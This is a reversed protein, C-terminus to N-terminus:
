PFEALNHPGPDSSNAPGGIGNVISGIEGQSGGLSMILMHHLLTGGGAPAEIANDSVRPGSHFVAYVGIGWAEHIAVTDSGSWQDGDVAFFTLTHTGASLWDVLLDPSSGIWGDRDSNWDMAEDSIMGDEADYAFGRLRLPAGLPVVSGDGPAVISVQPPKRAIEFPGGIAFSTLIGDSAFVQILATDTGPFQDGQVQLRDEELRTAVVNWTEGDDRSFAVDFWLPDGDGDEAHWEILPDHGAPWSDGAHPAIVGVEPASESVGREAILEDHHWLQVRRTEPEWPM